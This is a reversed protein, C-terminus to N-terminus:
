QIRNSSGGTCERMVQAITAFQSFPLNGHRPLLKIVLHLLCSGNPLRVWIFCIIKGPVYPPKPFSVPTPAKPYIFVVVQPHAENKIGVLFPVGPSQSVTVAELPTHRLM